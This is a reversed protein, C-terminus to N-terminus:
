IKIRGQRGLPSPPWREDNSRTNSVPCPFFSFIPAGPIFSSISLRSVRISPEGPFDLFAIRYRSSPFIAIMEPGPNREHIQSSRRLFFFGWIVTWVVLSFFSESFLLLSGAIQLHPAPPRPRTMCTDNIPNRAPFPPSTTLTRHPRVAAGWLAWRLTCDMNWCSRLLM